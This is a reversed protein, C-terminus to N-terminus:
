KSAFRALPGANEAMSPQSRNTGKSGYAISAYRFSFCLCHSNADEILWPALGRKKANGFEERTATRVNQPTLVVQAGEVKVELEVVEVGTAGHLQELVAQPLIIGRSNGVPRIKAVLAM